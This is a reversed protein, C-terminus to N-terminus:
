FWRMRGDTDDGGSDSGLVGCRIRARRTQGGVQEGHFDKVRPKQQEGQESREGAGGGRSRTLHFVETAADDGEFGLLTFDEDRPADQAGVGTGEGKIEVAGGASRGRGGGFLEIDDGNGARGVEEVGGEVSGDGVSVEDAGDEGRDLLSGAGAEGDGGVGGDAGVERNRELRGRAVAGVIDGDAVEIAVAFVFDDDMLGAASAVVGLGADGIFGNELGVLEVGGGGGACAQEPGNIESFVDAIAGM